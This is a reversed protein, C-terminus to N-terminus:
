VVKSWLVISFQVEYPHSLKTNWYHVYSLSTDKCHLLQMFFMFFLASAGRGDDCHSGCHKNLHIHLGESTPHSHPHIEFTIPFLSCKTKVEASINKLGRKLSHFSSSPDPLFASYQGTSVAM